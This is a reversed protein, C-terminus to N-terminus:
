YQLRVITAGEGGDKPLATKYEKIHTCQEHDLMAHVTKKLIPGEDPNSNYGIGHIILISDVRKRKCELFAKRLVLVAEHQTRGHLDVTRRLKRGIRQYPSRKRSKKRKVLSDKDKVGHTDLYQLIENKGSETNM